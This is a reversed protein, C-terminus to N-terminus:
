FSILAAALVIVVNNNMQNNLNLNPSSQNNQYENSLILGRKSSSQYETESKKYEFTPLREQEKRRLQSRFQEINIVEPLEKVLFNDSGLM